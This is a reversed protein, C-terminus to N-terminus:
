SQFFLLNYQSMSLLVGDVDVKASTDVLWCVNEGDREAEMRNLDAKGQGEDSTEGQERTATYLLSLRFVRLGLQGAGMRERWRSKLELRDSKFDSLAVCVEDQARKEQREIMSQEKSLGRDQEESESNRELLKSVTKLFDL